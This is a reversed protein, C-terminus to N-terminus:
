TEIGVLKYESEVVRWLKFHHIIWGGDPLPRWSWGTFMLNSAVQYLMQMVARRVYGLAASLKFFFHDDERAELAPRIVVACVRLGKPYGKKQAEKTAYEMLYSGSVNRLDTFTTSGHPWWGRDDFFPLWTDPEMVLALHYHVAGREQMEAVWAYALLNDKLFKRLNDMLGNIHRPLWEREPAYTLCVGLIKVKRKEIAGNVARAWSTVRRRLRAIRIQDSQIELSEGGKGIFKLIAM